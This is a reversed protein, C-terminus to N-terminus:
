RFQSATGFLFQPNAAYGGLKTYIFRSFGVAGTYTGSDDRFDSLYHWGARLGDRGTLFDTNQNFGALFVRLKFITQEFLTLLRTIYREEFNILGDDDVHFYITDATQRKTKGKTLFPGCIDM